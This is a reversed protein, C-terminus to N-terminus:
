HHYKASRYYLGCHKCYVRQNVPKKIEEQPNFESTWDHHGKILCVLQKHENLENKSALIIAWILKLKTLMNCLKIIKFNFMTKKFLYLRM